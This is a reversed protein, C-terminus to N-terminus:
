TLIYAYIINLYGHSEVQVPSIYECQNELTPQIEIRYKHSHIM